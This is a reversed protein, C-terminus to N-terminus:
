LQKPHAEFYNVIDAMGDGIVTGHDGGSIEIYVGEMDLKKMAEAWTRTNTPPVVTDADGQIIM